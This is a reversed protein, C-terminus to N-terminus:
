FCSLVLPAALFDMNPLLGNNGILRIELGIPLDTDSVSETQIRRRVKTTSGASETTPEDTHVATAPFTSFHPPPMNVIIADRLLGAAIPLSTKCIEGTFMPTLESEGLHMCAYDHYCYYSNTTTGHYRILWNELAASLLIDSYALQDVIKYPIFLMVVNKSLWLSNHVERIIDIVSNQAYVNNLVEGPGRIISSWIPFVLLSAELSISKTKSGLICQFISETIHVTSGPTFYSCKGGHSVVEASVMTFFKTSNCPTNFALRDALRNKKPVPSNAMLAHEDVFLNRPKLEGSTVNVLPFCFWWIIAICLIALSVELRVVKIAKLLKIAKMRM